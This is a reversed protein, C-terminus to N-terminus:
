CRTRGEAHVEIRGLSAGNVFLDYRGEPFPGVTCSAEAGGVCAFDCEETECAAELVDVLIAVGVQRATCTVTVCPNDCADTWTLELPTAAAAPSPLCPDDVLHRRPECPPSCGVGFLPSLVGALCCLLVLHGSGAPHPTRGRAGPTGPGARRPARRGAAPAAQRRQSRSAQGQTDCSAHIGLRGSM